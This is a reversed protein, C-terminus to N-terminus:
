VEQIITQGNNKKFHLKRTCIDDINQHTSLLIIRKKDRNCFEVIFKLIKLASANNIDDDDEDLGSTCEDLALIDIESSLWFLIKAVTLRQKQGNSLMKATHEKCWQWVNNSQEGIEKWLYLNKFIYEMKELDTNSPENNNLCFLEEYISLSGFGVTEDYFMYNTPTIKDGDIQKFSVRGTALKMFTSKGSGSAGTLAVIEGKSIKLNQNLILKFPKDNESKEDYMISFKEFSLENTETVKKETEQHYVRLINKMMKSEADLENCYNSHQQLLRNLQSISDIVTEFIAVYATLEAITSLTIEKTNILFLVILAFTSFVQAFTFILDSFFDKKNMNKENVLTSNALHRLREIRIKQDYKIIPVTRLLDNKLETKKDDMEVYIKRYNKRHLSEYASCLFKIIVSILILPIFFNNPITKNSVIAVIIMTITFFLETLNFWYNNRLTWSTTLYRQISQIIKDNSIQKFFNNEKTYVNLSVKELITGGIITQSDVTLNNIEKEYLICRERFFLNLIDKVNYLFFLSIGLVPYGNKILLNALLILYAFCYTLISRSLDLTKNKIVAKKLKEPQELIEDAIFNRRFLNKFLNGVEKLLINRKTKNEKKATM